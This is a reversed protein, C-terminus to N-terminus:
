SCVANDLSIDLDGHLKSVGKRTVSFFPHLHSHLDLILYKPIERRSEVVFFLSIIIFAAFVVSESHM